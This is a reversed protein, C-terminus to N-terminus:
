IEPYFEIVLRRRRLHTHRCLLAVRVRVEAEDIQTSYLLGTFVRCIFESKKNEIHDLFHAEELWPENTHHLIAQQFYKIAEGHQKVTQSLLGM